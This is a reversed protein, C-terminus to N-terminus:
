GTISDYATTSVANYTQDTQYHLQYSHDDITYTGNYFIGSAIPLGTYKDVEIYAGLNNIKGSSSLSILLESDHYLIDCASRCMTQALADTASFYVQYSNGSDLLKTGAIYRPLLITSVLLDQCSVRMDQATVNTNIQPTGNDITISYEGNRFLMQENKKTEEGGRSSNVLLSSLEMKTMFKSDRGYMDLHIEQTRNDGFADCIIMDKINATVSQSQMLYGCAKELMLPADPHEIQTYDTDARSPISVPDTFITIQIHKKFEVSGLTYTIDYTSMTLKNDQDLTALGSANRFSAGQPLAWTEGSSPTDFSLVTISGEESATINEYQTTDFLIAPTYRKCFDEETIPACFSGGGVTLYLTNDAYSESNFVGYDGITLSEDMLATMSGTGIGKYLLSQESRESFTEEGVTMETSVSVKLSLEKLQSIADAEQQYLQAPSFQLTTNSTASPGDSRIGRGVLSSIILGIVTVALLACMGIATIRQPNKM